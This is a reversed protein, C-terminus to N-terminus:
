GHFEAYSFGAGMQSVTPIGSHYLGRSSVESKGRVVTNWLEDM